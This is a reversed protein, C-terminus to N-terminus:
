VPPPAHTFTNCFREEVETGWLIDFVFFMETRRELSLVVKTAQENNKDLGRIRLVIGAKNGGNLRYDDGFTCLVLDGVSYGRAETVEDTWWTITRKTTVLSVSGLKARV